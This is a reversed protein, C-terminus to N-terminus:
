GDKKIVKRSTPGLNRRLARETKESITTKRESCLNPTISDCGSVWKKRLRNHTARYTSNTAIKEALRPYDMDTVQRRRQLAQWEVDLSVALRHIRNSAADFQGWDNDLALANRKGLVAAASVTM